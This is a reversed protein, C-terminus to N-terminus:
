LCPVPDPKNAPISGALGGQHPRQQPFELGGLSGDEPRTADSVERLLGSERIQLMGVGSREFTDQHGPLDAGHLPPDLFGPDTKVIESAFGPVPPDSSETPEEFLELGFTTHNSFGLRLPDGGVHTDAVLLQVLRYPSHRTTLASPDF